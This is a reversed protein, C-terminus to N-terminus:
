RSREGMKELSSLQAEIKEVRQPLRRLFVEQKNHEDLPTAPSGGFKGSLLSKSVGGQATVVVFDSLRVHGIVGVQGGLIVNRGSKTSGGIGVQAVILNNEGLVVNHGIQVQNDVKTGRSIRTEKFRARDITTNAGIEVDDELVVIGLQTIKEHVGRSNTHYGFGCSGIVAGPQLIVREGLRCGERVVAHAYLVCDDGIVSDPGVSVHSYLSCRNGIRVGRDLVVYPAINVDEGLLAEPHIVATPHIGSFGSKHERGRSILEAILQIAKSPNDSVLFNRGEILEINRPICVAGAQSQDMQRQYRPNALFSIDDATASELVDVNAILFNPDGILESQTLEALFRLSYQPRM